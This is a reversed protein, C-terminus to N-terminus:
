QAGRALQLVPGPLLKADIEFTLDLDATNLIAAQITARVVQGPVRQEPKMRSVASCMAGYIADYGAFSDWPIVTGLKEGAADRLWQEPSLLGVFTYPQKSLISQVFVQAEAGQLKKVEEALKKALQPDAPRLVALRQGDKHVFLKPKRVKAIIKKLARM